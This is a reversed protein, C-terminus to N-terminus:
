LKHEEGRRKCWLGTAKEAVGIDHASVDIGMITSMLRATEERTFLAFFSHYNEFLEFLLDKQDHRM